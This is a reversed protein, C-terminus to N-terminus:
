KLEVLISKEKENVGKVIKHGKLKQKIEELSYQFIMNPSSLSKLTTVSALAGVCYTPFNVREPLSTTIREALLVRLLM